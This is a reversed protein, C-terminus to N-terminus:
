VHLNSMEKNVRIVNHLDSEMYETAILLSNFNQPDKPLM